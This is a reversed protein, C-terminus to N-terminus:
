FRDTIHLVKYLLDPDIPNLLNYGQRVGSGMHFETAGTRKLFAELADPHLGGGPMITINQPRALTILELIDDEADLASSRGGSTLIHTIQDYRSLIDIADAFRSIEDFARHFTVPLGDAADLLRDLANVDVAGDTTLAGMVFGSVGLHCFHAIDQLMTAIDEKDYVFHRSHPRIMVRVDVNVHELIQQVLGYSPTLGGEQPATIIELRHAGRQAALIADGLTYAIVEVLM